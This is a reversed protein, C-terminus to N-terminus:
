ARDDEPTGNQSHRQTQSADPEPARDAKSTRKPKGKGKGKSAKAKTNGNRKADADDKKRRKTGARDTSAARDQYAHATRINRRMYGGAASRIGNIVIGLLESHGDNMENQLRAIMGRKESFARVVMIAADVRTCLASADSSVVAPAVDLLVLDYDRQAHELLRAMAATGLREFVRQERSGATLLHMGDDTTRVAGALETEGALVEALGPELDLGLTRHLSPRRLNADIVLVKQDVRRMAYALNTVISSAGSRPEGSFVMISRHGGRQADRLVATRLQRFSEALVGKPQDRFITEFHKPNDPDEAALPIHGLVRSRPIMDVDSPGKVRQDLLERLFVLSGVAGLVIVMVGAVTIPLKPSERVEPERERQVVEVRQSARNSATLTALQTRRNQLTTDLSDIRENLQEIETLDSTLVTLEERLEQRKETADAIQAIITREQNELGQIAASLQKLSESQRLSAMKQTRAELESELSRYQRHSPQIGQLRLSALSNEISEIEGRLRQVVPQQDVTAQFDEPFPDTPLNLADPIGESEEIRVRLDRLTDLQERAQILNSQLESINNALIQITQAAETGAENTSSIGKQLITQTRQRVLEQVDSEYTRIQERLADEQRSSGRSERREVNRIYAERILGALGTVDQRNKWAVSMDFLDTGERTRARIRNKLDRLALYEDFLGNDAVFQSHWNPAEVSLRPDAVVEELLADGTLLQVQTLMFRELEDESAQQEIALRGIDATPPNAEFIVMTRWVPAVRVWLMFVGVGLFVGFVGAAILVWLYKKVIKIPDITATQQAGGAPQPHGQRPQPRGRALAQQNAPITTM